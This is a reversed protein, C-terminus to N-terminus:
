QVVLPVVQRSQVLPHEELAVPAGLFVQSKRPFDVALPEEQADLERGASAQSAPAPCPGWRDCPRCARWPWRRARSWSWGSRRPRGLREPVLLSFPELAAPAGAPLVALLHELHQRYFNSVGVRAALGDAVLRCMNGWAPAAHAVFM